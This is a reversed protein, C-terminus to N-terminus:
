NGSFVIDIIEQKFEIDGLRYADVEDVASTKIVGLHYENFIYYQYGNIDNQPNDFLSMVAFGFLGNAKLEDKSNMLNAYVRNAEEEWGDTDLESYEVVSNQNSDSWTATAIAIYPMFVPKNYKQHLFKSMNSIRTALYEIGMEENSYAKPNPAKYAGPNDHDRSFQGIMQNFSIFDIKDLLANYIIEPKAWEEQDGLACYEYGCKAYKEEVGRNGTDMMSLSFLVDDTNAKITDIANSIISAFKEQNASSSIVIDKNFEPEMIIIKTGKFQKLFAAFKLNHEYYEQIHAQSPLGGDLEDAFYWYSFVPIYGQDMVKQLKAVDYWSEQWYKTTWCVIFKSNKLKQQLSSFKSADFKKIDQYYSNTAIDDDLVLDGASVWIVEQTKGEFGFSSNDGFGINFSNYLEEATASQKSTNTVDSSTSDNLDNSLSTNVTSSGGGGCGSMFLMLASVMLIDRLM